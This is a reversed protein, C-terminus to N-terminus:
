ILKIYNKKKINKNVEGNKNISENMVVESRVLIVKKDLMYLCDHIVQRSSKSLGVKNLLWEQTVQTETENNCTYLLVMYIKLCTDNCSNIIIRLKEANVLVYNRNDCDKYKIKYAVGDELQVLEIVDTYKRLKNMQRKFTSESIGIAKLQEKMEDSKLKSNKIYRHEEVENRNSELTIKAYLKYPFKKDQIIDDKTSMPLMLKKNM